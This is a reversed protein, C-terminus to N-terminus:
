INQEELRKWLKIRSQVAWLISIKKTTCYRSVYGNLARKWDGKDKCKKVRSKLWKAGCMLQGLQTELDDCGKAALGHVQLLGYEKYKSKSVIGTKFSSEHYAMSALLLPPIDHALAATVIDKSMQRQKDKDKALARGPSTKLLIVIANQVKDVHNVQPTLLFFSFIIKSILM